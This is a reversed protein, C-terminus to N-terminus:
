LPNKGPPIQVVFVGFEAPTHRPLREVNGVPLPRASLKMPLLIPDGRYVGSAVPPGFFNQADRIEFNTGAPMISGLNVQVQNLSDWNFVVINARGAEYRNPRIFIEVGQPRDGGSAKSHLDLGTAQRWRTFGFAATESAFSPEARDVTFYRNFDWLYNSAATGTPLKLDLSESNSLITNGQFEVNQWWWLRLPIKSVVYNDLLKVDQNGTDKYGLRIGFNKNNSNSATNYVYNNKIVIREASVGEVGGVQLNGTTQDDATLMGNNFSVNGEIHLGKQSSSHSDSHALIGYGAQDFVINDTIFKTGSANGVYMAHERKNNGNYFFLCGHIETMDKKDWIGHGNDHFIMNIFKVHPAYVDAGSGRWPEDDGSYPSNRRRDPNSNTVELGWFWVWSDKVKLAPQKAQSAAAKDLIVREGPSARVIIPADARGRLTSLYTGVYRGARLWIVDGPKVESGTPGHGLATALDWPSNETGRGQSSGGPAVYWRARQAPMVMLVNTLTANQCTASVDFSAHANMARTKISFSAITRGEPVIVRNPVSVGSSGSNKLTVVLGGRAAPYRLFVTGTASNGGVLLSPSIIFSKLSQGDVAQLRARSQAVEAVPLVTGNPFGAGHCHAGVLAGVVPLPLAFITLIALRLGKMKEVNRHHAEMATAAATSFPM